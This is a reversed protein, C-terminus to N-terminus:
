TGVKLYKGARAPDPAYWGPRGEPDRGIRAGPMVPQAADMSSPLPGAAVVAAITASAETEGDVPSLAATTRQGALSAIQQQLRQLQQELHQIAMDGGSADAVRTADVSTSPASTSAPMVPMSPAAPMPSADVAAPLQADLAAALQDLNGYEGMLQRFSIKVTFTKQLQLAVQTLMLSDLGLEIFNADRDSADIALGSVDEFMAALKAVLGGRRDPAVPPTAPLPQTEIAFLHPSADQGVGERQAMVPHMLVNTAASAAEVWFRQREFPYTPLRVRRRLQRRDFM